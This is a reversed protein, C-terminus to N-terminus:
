RHWSPSDFGDGNMQPEFYTVQDMKIISLINGWAYSQSQSWNGLWYLRGNCFLVDALTELLEIIAHWRVIEQCYSVLPIPTTYLGWLTCIPLPRFTKGVQVLSAADSFKNWLYKLLKICSTVLRIRFSHAYMTAISSFQMHCRWLSDM